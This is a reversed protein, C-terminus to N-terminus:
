QCRRGLRPRLPDHPVGRRQHRRRSSRVDRRLEQHPLRQHQEQRRRRLRGQSLVTTPMRILRVGRHAIAAAFGAVDLLAGGGIALVYNHRDVHNEQIAALITDVHDRNEKIDEGGPLIVPPAVLTLTDAHAKAYDAIAGTLEPRAAAVDGDIVAILKAPGHPAEIVSALADNAPDFANRTFLVEYNYEVTISAGLRRPPETGFMELPAGWVWPGRRALSLASDNGEM